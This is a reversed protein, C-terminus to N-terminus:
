WILLITELIFRPETVFLLKHRMLKALNVVILIKRRSAEPLWWHKDFKGIAVNRLKVVAKCIIKVNFLITCLWWSSSNNSLLLWNVPRSGSIVIIMISIEPDRGSLMAYQRTHEIVCQDWVRHEWVNYYKKVEKSTWGWIAMRQCGTTSCYFNFKYWSTVPVM